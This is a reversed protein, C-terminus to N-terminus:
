EGVICLSQRKCKAKFKSKKELLIMLFINDVEVQSVVIIFSNTTKFIWFSITFFLLKSHIEASKQAEFSLKIVSPKTTRHKPLKTEAVYM